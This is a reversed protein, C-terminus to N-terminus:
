AIILENLLMPHHGPPFLFYYYLFLIFQKSKLGFVYIGMYKSLIYIAEM